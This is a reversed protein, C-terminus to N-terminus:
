AIRPPVSAAPCHGSVYKLLGTVDGPKSTPFGNIGTPQIREDDRAHQVPFPCDVLRGSRSVGLMTKRRLARTSARWMQRIPPSRRTWREFILASQCVLMALGNVTRAGYRRANQLFATEVPWPVLDYVLSGSAIPLSDPWPSAAAEPWAGIDTTNVILDVKPALQELDLPWRHISFSHEDMIHRLDHVLDIAREIDRDVITLPMGERALAYVFSRAAIGAGIILPRRCALSVSHARLSTLFGQWQTNDGVLSGNSAVEIMNVAGINRAAPTLEELFKAAETQLAGTVEAGVFGLARLGLLADRLKGPDVALLVYSWNMQLMSFAANFLEPIPRLPSPLGIMGVLNCHDESQDMRLLRMKEIMM